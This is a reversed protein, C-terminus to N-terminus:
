LKWCVDLHRAEMQLSNAIIRAAPPPAAVGMWVAGLRYLAPLLGAWVMAAGRAMPERAVFLYGTVVLQVTGALILVTRNSTALLADARLLARGRGFAAYLCLAGATLLL